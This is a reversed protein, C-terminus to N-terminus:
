QPAPGTSARVILKHPLMRNCPQMKEGNLQPLLLEMCAIGIETMPQSITTLSPYCYNAYSINDFGMVSFDDPIRYGLSHLTSMCSMAMEDSFAFIASPRNERAVLNRTAQAAKELGYDGVELLDKDFPIGARYLARKYGDLRDRTSPVTMNGAVVGIRRHGLSLLYDVADEAAAMNNINVKPLGEFPVTECANVIPPLQDALPQEPDVDFPLRACFLLIGDAQRSRVMAAFSRERSELEQTDGLLLSYGNELAISEMARIVPYNFASIVDPIIAVLNYTKSKRLSVGLSNPTYGTRKIVELVQNRKAEAVLEPNRLVRSVTAPSVNAAKAIEKIGTM